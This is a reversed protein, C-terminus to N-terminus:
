LSDRVIVTRVRSSQRNGNNNIEPTVISRVTGDINEFDARDVAREQHRRAQTRQPHPTIRRQVIQKITAFDDKEMALDDSSTVTLNVECLIDKFDRSILNTQSSSFICEGEDVLEYERVLVTIREKNASNLPEPRKYDKRGNSGCLVMREIRGVMFTAKRKDILAYDTFLSVYDEGAKKNSDVDRRSFEQRQRVRKLRVTFHSLFTNHISGVFAQFERPYSIIKYALSIQLVKDEFPLYSRGTKKHWFWGSSFSVM